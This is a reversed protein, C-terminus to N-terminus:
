PPGPTRLLPLSRGYLYGGSGTTVTTVATCIAGCALHVATVAPVVSESVWDRGEDARRVVRRVAAEDVGEVAAGAAVAVVAAVAVAVVAVAVVAM